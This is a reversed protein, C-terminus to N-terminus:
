IVEDLQSRLDKAAADTAVAQALLARMVVVVLAVGAIAVAIGGVLLVIGPAVAEGPALLFGLAVMLVAAAAVAGIIIDVWRFAGASFVTGKRVMTLLRWVGILTVQFTLIGLLVVVLVPVRIAALGPGAESLDVGLLPVMVAQVFLTGALVAAMLIRLVLITPKGM